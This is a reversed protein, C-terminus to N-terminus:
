KGSSFEGVVGIKVPSSAKEVLQRAANAVKQHLVGVQPASEPPLAQLIDEGYQKLAQLEQTHNMSAVRLSSGLWPCDSRTGGQDTDRCAIWHTHAVASPSM